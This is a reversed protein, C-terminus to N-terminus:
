YVNNLVIRYRGPTQLFYEKRKSIIENLDSQLFGRRTTIGTVWIKTTNNNNHRNHHHFLQQDQPEKIGPTSDLVTSTCPISQVVSGMQPGQRPPKEPKAEDTQQRSRQREERIVTGRDLFSLTM